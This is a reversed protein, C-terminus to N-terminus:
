PVGGNRRRATPRDQFRKYRDIQEIYNRTSNFLPDPDEDGEAPEPWEIENADPAAARLERDIDHWVREARRKWQAIQRQHGQAIRTWESRLRNIEVDHRAHAQQNLRELETNIDAATARVRRNLNSDHYRAIETEVIRGLEGPHLAELADLETAGEGFRREWEAARRDTAKIPTRPLRYRICQEHTLAIPRLQIDLDLRERRLRHEIKRAVAVPMSMRGGPDFDSIYLIRLPLGSAIARDVVLECATLSLEGSGTVLNCGRSQAIPELIDNATTKECWLEVHYRQQITPEHLLLTPLGPMEISTEISPEECQTSIWAQEPNNPLYIIPADNRRDVFATVPVLDLLRADRCATVLTLWNAHTNAYIARYANPQPKRQSIIAYHVRRVHAGNGFRLRTWVKGFWQAAKRRRPVIYFPDNNAALAILTKIPRHLEKSLARIGDYDLDSM